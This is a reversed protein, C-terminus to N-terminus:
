DSVKSEVDDRQKEHNRTRTQGLEGWLTWAAEHFRGM